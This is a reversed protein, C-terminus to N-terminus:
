WNEMRVVGPPRRFNRLRSERDRVGAAFRDEYFRARALDETEADHKQYALSKMYHLVLRLDEADATPLDAGAEMPEGINVTCQLELVGAEAPRPLLRLAKADYDRVYAAPSGTDGSHLTTHGRLGYDDRPVAADAASLPYLAAGNIHAARIHLARAPMPISAAGAAFPLSLVQYKVDARKLLADFGETMYGYVESDAWLYPEAQDNVEARFAVVLEEATTAFM